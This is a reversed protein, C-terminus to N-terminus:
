KIEEMFQKIDRAVMSDKRICFFGCEKGTLVPIALIIDLTVVPESVVMFVVDKKLRVIKFNIQFEAIDYCQIEYSSLGTVFPDIITWLTGPKLIQYNGKVTM